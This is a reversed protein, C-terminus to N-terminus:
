ENETGPFIHHFFGDRDIRQYTHAGFFDRQAQILNTHYRVSRFADYYSIAAAFASVPIGNAISLGVVERWDQQADRVIKAFYDDLLLNELQPNKEYAEAIRNLFKARIICGGRFIKAIAKYELEWGYQKAAAKLLSFGQAYSVIKSAYLASKVKEILLGRDAYPTVLPGTLQKSALERQQDFASIFRSNVASSIVSVDIGLDMAEKSTWIGTGKQGATDKIVDILDADSLDDKEKFITATIEILYSNLEGHNWKTFIEGLEQNSFGGLKSLVSYAEGIIEMDGYEIGNHVMKVYHGAGDSGIYTTCAEGEAKAAIAVLVDKVLEYSEKRGGPMIAPGRRAGEEGGSVGMGMFRYGKEELTKQRRITDQYYSNGADILLDGSELYPLFAAITEDVAKGAKVMLIIKRPTELSAVFEEATKAVVIDSQPNERAVDQATSVTRNFISISFGHDSINLALNKGMVAMGVIGIQQKKM